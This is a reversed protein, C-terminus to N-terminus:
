DGPRSRRFVLQDKLFFILLVFSFKTNSLVDISRGFTTIRTTATQAQRRILWSTNAYVSTNIYIARMVKVRSWNQSMTRVMFWLRPRSTEKEPFTRVAPPARWLTKWRSAHLSRANAQNGLTLELGSTCVLFLTKHWGGWWYRDQFKCRRRIECVRYTRGCRSINYLGVNIRDCMM